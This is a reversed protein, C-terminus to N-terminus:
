TADSRSALWHYFELDAYFEPNDTAALLEIDEFGLSPAGTPTGFWLLGVVAATVGALAVSGLAWWTRARRQKLPATEALQWARARAARLRAATADDLGAVSQNLLRKAQSELQPDQPETM